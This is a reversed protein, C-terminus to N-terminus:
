KKFSDIIALVFGLITGIICSITYVLIFLLRIFYEAIINIDRKEKIDAIAENVCRDMKNYFTLM